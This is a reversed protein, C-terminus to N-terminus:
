RWLGAKVADDVWQQVRRREAMAERMMDDYTSGPFRADVIRWVDEHTMPDAQLLDTMMGTWEEYVKRQLPGPAAVRQDESESRWKWFWDRNVKMRKVSFAWAATPAKGIKPTKRRLDDWVDFSFRVWSVPPIRDMMMYDSARLLRDYQAHEGISLCRSMFASPRGTAQRCAVRYAAALMSVRSDNSMEPRLLAPHPVVVPQLVQAPNDPFGRGALKRIRDLREQRNRIKGKVAGATGFCESPIRPIYSKLSKNIGVKSVRVEGM